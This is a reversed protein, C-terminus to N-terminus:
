VIVRLCQSTGRHTSRQESVKRLSATLASSFGSHKELLKM